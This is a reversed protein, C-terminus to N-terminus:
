RLIRILEGAGSAADLARGEIAGASRTVARGSADTEVDADAAIAAGAEVLIIGRVNLGAQNGLDYDANAVGLVKGGAAPVAGARTVFRAKSLAAAALVTTALIIHETKM